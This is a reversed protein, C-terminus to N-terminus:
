QPFGAPILACFSEWSWPFTRTEYHSEGRRWLCEQSRSPARTLRSSRACSSQSCLESPLLGFLFGPFTGLVLMGRTRLRLGRRPWWLLWSCLFRCRLQWAGQSSIPNGMYLKLSVTDRHSYVQCLTSTAPPPASHLWVSWHCVDTSKKKKLRM